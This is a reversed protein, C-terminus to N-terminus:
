PSEDKAYKSPPVDQSFFELVDDLHDSEEDCLQAVRAQKQKAAQIASKKEEIQAELARIEADTASVFEQTQKTLSEVFSGLASLKRSADAVLTEPTLGMTKGMTGLTANVTQRKTELPLEQPLSALMERMQEATFPATPLGAQAYIAQFDVGGTETIAGEVGSAPVAIESLSPGDTGKVIEDVTRASGADGGQKQAFQDFIKELQADSDPSPAAPAGEPPLEVLLGAAKRLADKLGM